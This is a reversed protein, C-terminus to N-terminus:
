KIGAADQLAATLQPWNARTTEASRDGIRSETPILALTKGDSMSQRQVTVRVAPKGAGRLEFSDKTLMSKPSFKVATGNRVAECVLRLFGIPEQFRWLYLAAQLEAPVGAQAAHVACERADVQGRLVGLQKTSAQAAPDSSAIFRNAKELATVSRHTQQAPQRIAQQVTAVYNAQAQRERALEDVSNKFLAAVRPPIQQAQACAAHFRPFEQQSQPTFTLLDQPLKEVEDCTVTNTRASVYGAAQVSYTWQLTGSSQAISGGAQAAASQGAQERAQLGQLHDRQQFAGRLLGFQRQADVREADKLSQPGPASAQCAEYQRQAQALHEPRWQRVPLGYVPKDMGETGSLASLLELRVPCSFLPSASGVQSQALAASSSAIALVAVAIRPSAM